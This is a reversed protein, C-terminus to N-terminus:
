CDDFKFQFLISLSSNRFMTLTTCDVAQLKKQYAIAEVDKVIFGQYHKDFDAHLSKGASKNLLATGMGYRALEEPLHEILLHMKCMTPFGLDCWAAKFSEIYRM